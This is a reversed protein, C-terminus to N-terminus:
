AVTATNGSRARTVAKKFRKGAPLPDAKTLRWSMIKKRKGFSDTYRYIYSGDELQSEGVMLVRGKHDRRKIDSM